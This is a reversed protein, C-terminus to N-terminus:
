VQARASPTTTGSASGLTRVSPAWPVRVESQPRGRLSMRGLGFLPVSGRVACERYRCCKLPPGPAEARTTTTTTTGTTHQTRTRHEPTTRTKTVLNHGGNADSSGPEARQPIVEQEGRHFVDGGGSSRRASVIMPSRFTDQRGLGEVLVTLGHQVKVPALQELALVLVTGSARAASTRGVCSGARRSRRLAGARTIGGVAEQGLPGPPHRAEGRLRPPTIGARAGSSHHDRYCLRM